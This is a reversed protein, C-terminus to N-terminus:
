HCFLQFWLNTVYFNHVMLAFQHKALEIPSLNFVITYILYPFNDQYIM